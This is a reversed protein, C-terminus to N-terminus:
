CRAGRAFFTTTLKQTLWVALLCCWVTIALYVVHTWIPLQAFLLMISSFTTFAGAFGTGIGARLWDPLQRYKAYTSLWALLVCGLVNIGLTSISWPDDRFVWWLGARAGTGLAGGLAVAAVVVPTLPQAPTGPTADPM